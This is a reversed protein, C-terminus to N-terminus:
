NLEIRVAVVVFAAATVMCVLLLSVLLSLYFLLGYIYDQIECIL